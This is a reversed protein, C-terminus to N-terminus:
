KGGIVLGPLIVQVVFTFFRSTSAFSSSDYATIHSPLGALQDVKTLTCSLFSSISARLRAGFDV